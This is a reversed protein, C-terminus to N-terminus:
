VKLTNIMQANSATFNGMIKKVYRRTEKFVGDNELNRAIVGWDNSGYKEIWDSVRKPGANYAALALQTSGFRDLQQKLYFEGFLQNVKPDKLDYKRVGLAKAIDKATDPMIQMLGTAGKPSVAKPDGKSEQHIVARVLAAPLADNAIAEIPVSQDETMNLSVPENISQFQLSDLVQPASRQANSKLMNMISDIPAIPAAIARQERAAAPVGIALQAPGGLQLPPNVPALGLLARSKDASLLMDQAGSKIAEAYPEMFAPKLKPLIKAAGYGILGTTAGVIPGGFISVAGGGLGAAGLNKVDQWLAARKTNVPKLGLIDSVANNVIPARATEQATISQGKSQKGAQKMASQDFSDLYNNLAELQKTGKFLKQIQTRQSGELVKRANAPSVQIKQKLEAIFLERMQDVANIPAVELFKDMTEPSKMVQDYIRSRELVPQGAKTDIIDGAIGSYKQSIEAWLDNAAKWKVAEAKTLTSKPNSPAKEIADTLGKKIEAVVTGLQGEGNNFLESALDGANKRLRITEGLTATTNKPDTIRSFFDKFKQPYNGNNINEPTLGIADIADGVRSKAPWQSVKKNLLDPTYNVGAQEFEMDALKKIEAGIVEGAGQKSIQEITTPSIKDLYLQRAANRAKDVAEVKAIVEPTANTRRTAAEASALGANGTAEALTQPMVKSLENAAPVTLNPDNALTRVVDASLRQQGEPSRATAIERASNVARAVAKGGVESGKFQGAMYALDAADKLPNESFVPKDTGGFLNSLADTTWEGGKIAAAGGLPNGGSVITGATGLAANRTNTALREVGELRSAPEAEYMPLNVGPILSPGWILNGEKDRAWKDGFAIQGTADVTDQAFGLAAAPIDRVGRAANVVVGKTAPLAGNFADVSPGVPTFLSKNASSAQPALAAAIAANQQEPPTQAPMRDKLYKSFSQEFSPIEIKPIKPQLGRNTYPANELDIVQNATYVHGKTATEIAKAIQIRADPPLAATGNLISDLQGGLGQLAPVSKAAERIADGTVANYPERALALGTLLSQTTAIDNSAVMEPLSYNLAQLSRIASITKLGEFSRNNDVESQIEANKAKLAESYIKENADQSRWINAADFAAASGYSLPDAPDVTAIPAVTAVPETITPATAPTANPVIAAVEAPAANTIAIPASTAASAPASTAPNVGFLPALQSVTSPVNRLNGPNAAIAATVLAQQAKKQEEQAAIDQQLKFISAQQKVPGFISPSLGYSEADASKGALTDAFLNQVGQQAQTQYNTSLRNAGGSLLGGLLSSIIVDKTKYKGTGAGQLIANNISDTAGVFGAFPNAAAIQPQAQQSYLYAALDDIAAM